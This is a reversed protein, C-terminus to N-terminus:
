LCGARQLQGSASRTNLMRDKISIDIQNVGGGTDFTRICPAKEVQYGLSSAKEGQKPLFGAAWKIKAFLGM